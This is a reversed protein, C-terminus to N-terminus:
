GLDPMADFLRQHERLAYRDTMGALFDAIRRARRSNDAPDLGKRWEEPLAQPDSWYREFLREVVGEAATMVTMVRPHRYVHRWLHAKIAREGEAAEESFAIMARGAARVDDASAPKTEGLRLLAEGIADEILRTILRRVVENVLRPKELAPHAAEIAEIMPRLYTVSRLGEITLLGARLGDDIDHANYAIDDAIAAAQAEASAFTSLQLDQIDAYALIAAPLVKGAYTGIGNGDPDILPGNHKVLGELTEWSLNLGDFDPYRRELRTVVRLSQANHDFGGYHRMLADLAREGAHGFPTHGLDHSLAIAEALDEDLRLARALARAIQAVEITHTLRTRYHDGEDFLFVQTKDKLRRFATSHIIRDRDRQFPTRTPSAPEPYLRGRSAAPDCAFPARVDRGFGILGEM